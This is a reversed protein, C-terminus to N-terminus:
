PRVTGRIPQIKIDIHRKVLSDGPINITIVSGSSILCNSGISIGPEIFIGTGFVVNDGASVRGSTMVGPGFTCNNGLTNHHDLNVYASLFNNDGLSSCSGIRSNALIVNGVGMSVNSHILASPDIINAFPVGRSTLEQFLAERKKIDGFSFIAADFRKGALLSHIEALAGLIPVGMISKGHLAPNDDLIGVALASNTRAIADIIHGAGYGGGIVLIRKRFTDPYQDNALDRVDTPTSLAKSLYAKVDSEKVVGEGPVLAIDIGNQKALIEAKKTWKRTEEASALRAQESRAAMGEALSPDNTESIIAFVANVAIQDGEQALHFLFGDQQAEIDIIAKTTEVECITSHATVFDGNNRHWAVITVADDNISVMPISQPFFTM